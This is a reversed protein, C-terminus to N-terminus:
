RWERSVYLHPELKHKYEQVKSPHVLAVRVPENNKTTDRVVVRVAKAVATSM